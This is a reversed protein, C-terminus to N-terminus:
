CLIDFLQSEADVGWLRFSLGISILHPYVISHVNMFPKRMAKGLDVNLSCIHHDFIIMVFVILSYSIGRLMDLLLVNKQSSLSVDM